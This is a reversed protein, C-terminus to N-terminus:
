KKLFLRKLTEDVIKYCVWAIRASVPYKVCTHLNELLDVYEQNQIMEVTVLRARFLSIVSAIQKALKQYDKEPNQM